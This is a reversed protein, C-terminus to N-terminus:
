EAPEATMAHGRWDFSQRLLGAIWLAPQMADRLAMAALDRPGVPLDYARSFLLEAGYWLAVYALPLLGPVAGALALAILALLGPLPGQLPELAFLGPFGDRRIISWRLQRDWVARVRRRGVPHGSLRLPLRVRLGQARVLKTAGVDEATDRGLAALGGGARLVRRNWFLTKGQAFGLGLADAALQWRAQTGNLFACEVAGWLGEAATGLPPGSVLGTDVGWSDALTSLYDPALMLNADTLVFWDGRAAAVGKEVNNLKPNASLRSDGILLRAPVGPHAAIMERIAACAPDTATEACFLVEYDPYDQTFSSALTECDHPDLGKVPRILTLHPRFAPADSRRRRLWPRGIALANSGLHAGLSLAACGGLLGTVIM